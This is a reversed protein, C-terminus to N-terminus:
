PKPPDTDAARGSAQGLSSRLIEAFSAPTASAPAGASKEAADLEQLRLRVEALSTNIERNLQQLRRGLNPPLPTCDM